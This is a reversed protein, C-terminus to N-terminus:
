CTRRNKKETLILAMIDTLDIFLLYNNISCFKNYVSCKSMWANLIYTIDYFFDGM